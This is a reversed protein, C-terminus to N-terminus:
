QKRGAVHASCVLFVPQLEYWVDSQTTSYSYKPIVVM